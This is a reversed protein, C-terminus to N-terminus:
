IASIRCAPICLKQVSQAPQNLITCIFFAHTHPESPEVFPCKGQIRGFVVAISYCITEHAPCSPLPGWQHGVLPRPCLRLGAVALRRRTALRLRGGLAPGRAALAGGGTPGAAAADATEEAADEGEEEAQDPAGRQRPRRHDGQHDPDGGPVEIRLERRQGVQEVAAGAARHGQEVAVALDEGPPALLEAALDVGGGDCRDQLVGDDGGLVLAEVAMEADARAADGAGDADVDGFPAAREGAVAAAGDRLLHGLEEAEAHGVVRVRPLVLRFVLVVAAAAREPALDLFHGVGERQLRLIGLVVDQRDVEVAGIEAGAGM